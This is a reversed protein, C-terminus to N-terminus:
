PNKTTSYGSLSGCYYIYHDDPNFEGMGTWKVEIIGLVDTNLRTMELKVVELKGENLSRVNWIGICYQEKCGQIKTEGGFVDVVQYQKQKPKAEENRRSINRWEEGTAYQAGVSKPLESNPTMYRQRKMGNMPSESYSFQVPKGNWKGTFWQKDSSGVMVQGDQIARCPM